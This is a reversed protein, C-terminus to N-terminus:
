GSLIAKLEVKPPALARVRVEAARIRVRHARDGRAARLLVRSLEAPAALARTGFAAARHAGSEM